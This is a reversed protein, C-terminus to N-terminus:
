ACIYMTPTQVFQVAFFKLPNSIIGVDSLIRAYARVARTDHRDKQYARRYYELAQTPRELQIYIDGALLLAELNSPERRLYEEIASAAEAYQKEQYLRRARELQDALISGISVFLVLIGCIYGRM